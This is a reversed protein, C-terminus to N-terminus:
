ICNTARSVENKKPIDIRLSVVRYKTSQHDVISAKIRESHLGFTVYVFVILQNFDIFSIIVM